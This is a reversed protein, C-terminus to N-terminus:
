FKQYIVEINRYEDTQIQQLQQFMYHRISLWQVQYPLPKKKSELLGSM